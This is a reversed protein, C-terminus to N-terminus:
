ARAGKAQAVGPGVATQELGLDRTLIAGAAVVSGAGIRRGQIVVAGAGIFAGAGVQADGCLTAGPALHVDAGLVGDHDLSAKTAVICGAGLSCGPQVIAGAIVQVGPVMQVDPAVWAAPHVFTAFAFGHATWANHLRARVADCPMKGVGNLLVLSGPDMARLVDDGGLVQLGHWDDGAVLAPDCVGTIQMGLAETLARVFRAHGGAGLLIAPPISM